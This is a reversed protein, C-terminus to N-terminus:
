NKVEKPLEGHEPGTYHWYYLFDSKKLVLSDKNKKEWKIMRHPFKNEFYFIDKGKEFNVEVVYPKRYTKGETLKDIRRTTIVAESLTLPQIRNSILSPMMMTKYSGKESLRFRLVIPLADYFLFDEDFIKLLDGQDDFYSHYSFHHRNNKFIYKMFTNGCGDQSNMTYKIIRGTDWNFFFSAMQHYDYIGAPVHRIYNMKIVNTAMEQKMTKVFKERHFPEKVIILKVQANRFIKYKKIKGQYVQFEAKGSNWFPDSLYHKDRAGALAPFLLLIIFFTITFQKM